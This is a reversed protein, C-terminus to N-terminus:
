GCSRYLEVVVLISGIEVSCIRLLILVGCKDFRWVCECIGVGSTSGVGVRHVGVCPKVKVVVEMKSGKEKLKVM